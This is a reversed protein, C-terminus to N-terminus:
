SVEREAPAPNALVPTIVTLKLSPGKDGGEQLEVAKLDPVVKVLFKFHADLKTKLASIMTMYKAQHQRTFRQVPVKSIQKYVDGLTELTKMTQELQRSNMIKQRLDQERDRKLREQNRSRSSKSGEKPSVIPTNFAAAIDFGPREHDIVKIEKAM